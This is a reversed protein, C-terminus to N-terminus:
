SAVGDFIREQAYPDYDFNPPKAPFPRYVKPEIPMFFTYSLADFANTSRIGRERLMTEKSELQTAGQRNFDYRAASMEEVLSVEYGNIFEPICLQKIHYKVQAALETRRNAFRETRMDPYIYEAGSGPHISYVPEGWSEMIDFVGAGLGNTDIAVYEADLEIRVKRVLGALQMTSKGYVITVPLSKADMGKRPYIIAPDTGYRAPDVGLVVPYPNERLPIRKTAELADDRSIFSQGGSKPFKGLVRIRYFDSDRGHDQAWKAHQEKNVGPVEEANVETCNWRHHYKGGEFCERFRGTTSTPNGQVDWIIQTDKDTLAGETTEWIVDSITSAEDYLIYLRKGMNHLGAFAQANNDSWPTMDLRWERALSEDKSYLATATIDFFRNAIFLRFWKAMEVWTKTKLQGETNATVIGRTGPFTSMAWISTMGGRASKGTGHGSSIANQIVLEGAQLRDGLEGFYEIHWPYPEKFRALETNEEGWPFAWMVFGLPDNRFEALQELLELDFSSPSNTM